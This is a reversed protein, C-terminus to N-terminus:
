QVFGGGMHITYRDYKFVTRNELIRAKQPATDTMLKFVNSLSLQMQQSLFTTVKLFQFWQGYVVKGSASLNFDSSYNGHTRGIVFVFMNEKQIYNRRVNIVRAMEENTVSYAWNIIQNAWIETAKKYNEAKSKLSYVSESTHDQWKLQFLAIQKTSKDVIVADIDTITVGLDDKIVVPHDICIYQSDTFISYLQARFIEERKNTNKDWDKPYKRKLSHLMFFFPQYLMNRPDESMKHKMHKSQARGVLSYAQCPPGGIIVDVHDTGDAALISDITEFIGPLTEKTMTKCIVTRLVEKPIRNIFEERTLKGRLYDYYVPLQKTKKLYYYASRTELTQAAYPNMEVHAVPNFGAQFFGESLGGAGAFLDIFNYGNHESVTKFM